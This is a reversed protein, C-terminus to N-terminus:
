YSRNNENFLWNMDILLSSDNMAIKAQEFQEATEFQIVSIQQAVQKNKTIEFVMQKIIPEPVWDRYTSPAGFEDRYVRTHFEPTFLFKDARIFYVQRIHPKYNARVFNRLVRYEKKLPNIYQFNFTYIGTLVLWATMASTFLKRGGETKFLSVLSESVLLFVALNFPFLTRYSPFNEAAIMSPLYILALLFLVIAAFFLNGTIPNHKNRRLTIVLWGVFVAPYFIQSFISRALFLLNMSFGQPFPGSFFFSIKRPLDFHIETRSGAELHYASLSLKFLFYYVLYTFVYFIIGTALVRDPKVRKHKVYHLFFPILFIGFANQYIFLSIIGLALSGLVVTIRLGGIRSNLHEFLIHGGMVGALIALFIEMCSAWGIYICVSISCVVYLSGLWWMQAPLGLLRVWRKLVGSWVLTTVIWGILSFLRLIKLQEISSISSFFLKFLLGTLWRGQTHFM